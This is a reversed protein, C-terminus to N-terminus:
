VNYGIARLQERGEETIHDMTWPPMWVWNLTVEGVMGDLVNRVDWELQDTLPCAPTTLTMDITADGNDAVHVGYVLGLDVINLGLEPDVVDKLAELVEEESPPVRLPPEPLAEPVSPPASEDSPSTPVTPESM